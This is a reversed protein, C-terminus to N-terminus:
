NIPASVTKLRRGRRYPALGPGNQPLNRPPIKEYFNENVKYHRNPIRSKTEVM